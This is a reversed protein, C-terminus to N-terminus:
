GDFSTNVDAATWCGIRWRQPLGVKDKIFVNLKLLGYFCLFLVVFLVLTNKFKNGRSDKNSVFYAVIIAIPTIIHLPIFLIRFISEIYCGYMYKWFCYLMSSDVVLYILVIIILRSLFKKKNM